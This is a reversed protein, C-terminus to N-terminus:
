GHDTEEAPVSDPVTRLYAAMMMAPDKYLPELLLALIERCLPQMSEMRGHEDFLYHHRGIVVGWAGKSRRYVVPEGTWQLTM